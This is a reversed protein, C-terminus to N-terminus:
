DVSIDYPLIMLYQCYKGDLRRSIGAAANRANSYQDNEPFSSNIKAFDEKSLVIEARIAGTFDNGLKPLCNQMIATNDSIEEGEVKNGRTIGHRFQGEEYVVSLSLGDLKPQATFETGPPFHLAWKRFDEESFVNNLSGMAISHAKKKWAPSPDHGVKALIPHLPDIAEVAKRLGDYESDSMLPTKGSYYAEDAEVVKQVLTNLDSNM